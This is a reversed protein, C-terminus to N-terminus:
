VANEDIQGLCNIASNLDILRNSKKIAKLIKKEDPYNLMMYMWMEKLRHLTYDENKLLILYREELVNSFSILEDTSIKKGGKIERFIAPNKIAGRGIMVSDLNKYKYTINEFDHVTYINGNYCLPMKAETYAKDFVKMNPEGKYYEERVRPHVILKEMPYKNFIKLLKDFEDHSYFGTRCKVSIKIDSNNFIGDLLSDLFDTDLLAGAGRRKKVVTGSPCGLNLNVTDYNLEKIKKVFECFAGASSCLVQPIVKVDNNNPLVDRLSKISLRENETPVIFPAFYDDCGGFMENHANRYTYTAVGEMPAFYLKM